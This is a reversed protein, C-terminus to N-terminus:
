GSSPPAVPEGTAVILDTMERVWSLVYYSRVAYLIRLLVFPASIILALIAGNPEFLVFQIVYAITAVMVGYLCRGMASNPTTKPDSIMFFAFVLLAGNQM